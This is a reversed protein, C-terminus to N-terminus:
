ARASMNLIRYPGTVLLIEKPWLVMNLVQALGRSYLASCYPVFYNPLNPLLSVPFEAVSSICM